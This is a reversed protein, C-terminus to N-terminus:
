SSLVQTTQNPGHKLIDTVHDRIRSFYTQAYGDMKPVVLELEQRCQRLVKWQIEALQGERAYAEIIRLSDLSLVTIDVGDIAAGYMDDPFPLEYLERDSLNKDKDNM